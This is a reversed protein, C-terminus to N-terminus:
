SYPQGMRTKNKGTGIPINIKTRFVLRVPIESKSFKLFKLEPKLFHWFLMGIEMGIGTHISYKGVGLQSYLLM